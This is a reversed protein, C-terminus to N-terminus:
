TGHRAGLRKAERKCIRDFIKQVKHEALPPDCHRANWDHLLILVYDPDLSVARLLKGAM